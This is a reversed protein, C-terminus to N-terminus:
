RLEFARSMRGACARGRRKRQEEGTPLSVGLPQSQVEGQHHGVKRARPTAGPLLGGWHGLLRLDSRNSSTWTMQIAQRNWNESFPWNAAKLGELEKVVRTSEDDMDDNSITGGCDQRLCQISSRSQDMAAALFEQVNIMGSGDRDVQAFLAALDQHTISGYPHPTACGPLESFATCLRLM